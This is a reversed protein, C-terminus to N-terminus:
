RAQRFFEKGDIRPSTAAGARGGGGSGRGPPGQHPPSSFRPGVNSAAAALGHVAAAGLQQQQQGAPGVAGASTPCGATSAAPIGSRSGLVAEKAASSSSRVGRYPSGGTTHHHGANTEAGAAAAATHASGYGMNAYANGGPSSPGAHVRLCVLVHGHVCPYPEAAAPRPCSCAGPSSRLCITQQPRCHDLGLNSSPEGQLRGAAGAMGGQRPPSWSGSGLQQAQRQQQQLQHQQTYHGSASMAANAAAAAAAAAIGDASHLVESVLRETTMDVAAYASGPADAQLLRFLIHLSGDMWYTFRGTRM